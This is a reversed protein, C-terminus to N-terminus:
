MSTEYMMTPGTSNRRPNVYSSTPALNVLSRSPLSNPNVQHLPVPPAPRVPRNRIYGPQYAPTFPKSSESFALNQTSCPQRFSSPILPREVVTDESQSSRASSSNRSSETFTSDGETGSLTTDTVCSSCPTSTTSYISTDANQGYLVNGARLDQRSILDNSFSRTDPHLEHYVPFLTSSSQRKSSFSSPPRRVASKASDTITTSYSKGNSSYSDSTQDSLKSCSTRLTESGSWTTKEGHVMYRHARIISDDQPRNEKTEGVIKAQSRNWSQKGQREREMLNLKLSSRILEKRNLEEEKRKRSKKFWCMALLVIIVALSAMTITAIIIGARWLAPEKYPKVGRECIFPLLTHCNQFGIHGTIFNLWGCQTSPINAGSIWIQQRMLNGFLSFKEDDALRVSAIQSVRNALEEQRVDDALLYPLIADMKQCTALADKYTSVAGVFLFCSKFEDTGAQFWGAPCDGEILSTNSILVPQYNVRILKLYDGGDRIKASAVGETGPYGWYNQRADIYTGEYSNLSGTTLEYINKANDFVNNRYTQRQVETFVTSRYRETEIGVHAWWDFSVGSPELVQRKKRKWLSRPRRNYDDVQYESLYGYRETYQHGHGLALNDQFWNNQIFHVTSSLSSCQGFHLTHLGTNNSFVNRTFNASLCKALVTDHYLAYNQSIVNNYFSVKQYNNGILEVATSNFNSSFMSDRIVTSLRAVASSTDSFLLLGGQNHSVHIGRLYAAMSNFLHLEIAHMSTSINGFVHYGNNQFTCDDLVIKPGIEGTNRYILGGRENTEVRSQQIFVEDVPPSTSEATIEAVFGYTGDAASARLHLALESDSKITLSYNGSTASFRYLLQRFSNSAYMSLTDERGLNAQFGNYFNVLLFRFTISRSNAKFHKVCDVNFSDYKYFVVIREKLMYTKKSSCIDLMGRVNYPIKIPGKPTGTGSGSGQLNSVWLSLGLGLNQTINIRSLIVKERPTIVQLADMSSNTINLADVKPVRQIFVLAAVDITSNHSFGGGVIEVHKLVSFERSAARQYELGHNAFVIGGWNGIYDSNLSKSNGCYIYNFHENDMCQWMTLNGNLRIPCLYLADENGYCQRPEVYTKVLRLKPNYEWRPTLWHYTNTSSYGLERCVVQANRITFERDCSPIWEGTTANYVELFGSAKSLNSLRITFQQYFANERKLKPFQSYINNDKDRLTRRKITIGRQIRRFGSIWRKKQRRVILRKYRTSVRDRLENYETINIPKFRIPDWYSGNAVINGLVLIRANPWVHIEVGREITLTANPMITLDKIIRYPRRPKYHFPFVHWQERTVRLTKSEYIRGHLDEETSETRIVASLQGKGPKWWFDIFLEETVYFPSYNALSYINWDDFDFIRQNIEDQNGCGWWNYTVNITDTVLPMKCGSVLEFDLLVNKLRNYHVEIKQSGFIGIAYSRPWMDVYDDGSRIYYNNQIYNYQIGAPVIGRLSHSKIDSKIMWHGWNLYVRNRECVLRKEMGSLLIMGSENAAINKTFNNSSINVFTYYGHLNMGFGINSEFRNESAIFSHFWTSLLDYTDPFSISIHFNKNSSFTNSWFNWKFLNASIYLDRHTQIFGGFNEVASCNDIHYEIQALPAGEIVIQQPSHVWAVAEKNRTFNVKQFWLKEENRRNLLAGDFGTLNNYHVSSFGYQNESIVSNYVHVFKDVYEQADLFLLLLMIEPNGYSRSYMFELDSGSFVLPFNIIDNRVSWLKNNNDTFLIDEDSYDNPRNVVQIVIRSSLGFQQGVAKVKQTFECAKSLVLPCDETATTILFKRQNLQSEAIEITPLKRNPIIFVNNLQLRQVDLRKLWTVIDRQLAKSVLPNYRFGSVGNNKIVVNEVTLGPSRIKLGHRGNNEIRSNRISPKKVLDNYVVDIGNWFNDRIILNHFNHYNWDIFLATSFTPIRFDFVGAKEIIWDDMVTQGTVAPPNTLLSYRVGAWHPESCRIGVVETSKCSAGVNHLIGDHRCRTLDYEREECRINDMTMPLNGQSPFIRWNEFYEPDMVLGLQNCALLALSATWSRNCVTGWQGDVLVELRGMTVETNDNEDVLRIRDIQPIKFPQNTFTVSSYSGYFGSRVMEGQVLMGVGNAFEFVTGPSLTLTAGPVVNLDENVTYKGKPLDVKEWITGGIVSSNDKKFYRRFRPTNVIYPDIDNCVQAFPFVEIRALSYRNFQDFVKHMFGQQHESGWSNETANIVKAHESLETAIEYKALPNGFCNRTIEVNSSSVVVAAYPSSRPNLHPFPNIVTNSRVENQQNFILRQRTADENLGISVISQASNFKFYNKSIAVEAPLDGLQRHAANRILLAIHTNNMFYNSNIQAFVNVAPELRMGIGTGNEIRNGSIDVNTIAMGNRQCSFIEISPHYQNSLLETWSIIVKPRINRYEPICFNGVLIGGWGNRAVLTQLYFINSAPRGKFIIEQSMAIYHSTSNHNFACGRWRNDTVSTGNIMVTGGVYSVNIGDGWNEKVNSSNIWINAAGDRVLFGAIGQNNTINVNTLAVRDRVSQVHIGNGTNNAIVTNSVNLGYYAKDAVTVHIRFLVSIDREIYDITERPSHKLTIYLPYGFSRFSVSQPLFDQIIPIQLKNRGFCSTDNDIFSCAMLETKSGNNMNNVSLFQLTYVYNNNGPITVVMWCPSPLTPNINTGNQLFAYVMHPFFNRQEIKHQQCFNLRPKEMGYTATSGGRNSIEDYNTNFAMQSYYIGDGYNDHIYTMNIYLRGDTTNQVTIGHGRNFAITSNALTIPGGPEYICIGDRASREVKLGNMIPPIGEVYLASTTNKSAADYGAYLIDIYELRSTSEKHLSIEDPDSVFYKYSSSIIQLGKWHKAWGLFTPPGWCYIGIDDEGQCLNESLPISNSSGFGACDWLTKAGSLCAPRPMVFPYSDNNRRYWRWFGGDAYGMTNCTIKVDVSTWNTLQTCVSRWRDRFLVQLRGQRVSPGDILRFQPWTDDYNFQQQYPLMQIHAFENGVAYITGKVKLGVGTNFYLQVGTEITLTAGAEVTLDTEVYYPSNRFSLTINEAYTGGIVNKLPKEPIQYGPHLKQGQCNTQELLSLLIISVILFM